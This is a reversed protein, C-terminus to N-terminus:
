TPPTKQIFRERLERIDIKLPSYGYVLILGGLFVLSKLITGPWSDNLAWGTLWTLAVVPVLLAILKGSYRLVPGFSLGCWDSLWVLMGIEVSFKVATRSWAASEASADFWLFLGLGLCLATSYILMWVLWFQPKGLGKVMQPFPACLTRVLGALGFAVFLPAAPLWAKGFCILVIERSFLVMVLYIPFLVLMIERASREFFAQVQSSDNRIRAFLPFSVRTFVYGLRATPLMLFTFALNYYGLATAGLWKAIIIKDLYNSFFDAWRSSLEFAGFRLLPIIERLSGTHLLHVPLIQRGAWIWGLTNIINRLLFGVAMSWAGWGMWALWITGVLSISWATIEIQAVQDFKMERAILGSYPAGFPTILLSAGMLLLLGPLDERGFWEAMVPSILWLILLILAGLAWNVWTLAALQSPGIRESQVVAQSLGAEAVPTLFSIFTAALAYDGASEPGALRAFVAMQIFQFLAVGVSGTLSWRVGKNYATQLTSKM